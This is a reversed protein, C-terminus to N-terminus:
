KSKLSNRQKFLEKFAEFSVPYDREITRTLPNYQLSFIKNKMEYGRHKEVMLLVNTKEGIQIPQMIYFFEALNVVTKSGRIDEKCIMRDVNMSSIHNTHAVAFFATNTKKIVSRIQKIFDSQEQHTDGYLGSTTLNDYMFVDPQTFELYEFLKLKNIKTDIESMFDITKVRDGVIGMDSLRLEIDNISEESLFVAMKLNKQKNEPSILLSRILSTVLTTKGAHSPALLVHTHRPRLGFHSALFSFNSGILVTEKFDRIEAAKQANLELNHIM